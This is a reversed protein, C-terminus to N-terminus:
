ERKTLTVILDRWSNVYRNMAFQKFEQNKPELWPDWSGAFTWEFNCNYLTHPAEQERWQRNLYFVYWESLPAKHDPDGYFCAHSWHPTIILATANPKLVRYLENFFHIREPWTFHEVLHSSHIEDISADEWPWPKTLDVLQDVGEFQKVDVGLFGERKHKGCGLDLKVM